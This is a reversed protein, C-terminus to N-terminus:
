ARVEQGCARAALIADNEAVAAAALDGRRRHEAAEALLDRPTPNPPTLTPEKRLRGPQFDVRPSSILPTDVGGM